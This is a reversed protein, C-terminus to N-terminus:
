QNLCRTFQLVSFFVKMLLSKSFLCTLIELGFKISTLGILYGNPGDLGLIFLWVDLCLYISQMLSLLNENHLM